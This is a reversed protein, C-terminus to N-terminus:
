TREISTGAGAMSWSSHVHFSPLKSTPSPAWSQLAWGSPVRIRTRAVIGVSWRSAARRTMSVIVASAISRLWSSVQSSIGTTTCRARAGSIASAADISAFHSSAHFASLTSSWGSRTARSRFSAMSISSWAARSGRTARLLFRPPIRMSSSRPTPIPGSRSNPTLKWVSLPGTTATQPALSAPM